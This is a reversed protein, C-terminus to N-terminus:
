EDRFLHSYVERLKEMALRLRTHLTGIPVGLQEAAERRTLGGWFILEIAERQAAPLTSLAGRVEDRLLAEDFGPDRAPLYVIEDVSLERRQAKGRRSRLEDIARHHAIAVLWSALSGQAAAYREINTWCRLFVDQVIEEAAGRDQVVRFAISYVLRGYRDYLQALGAPSQARLLTLIAADDAPTAPTATATGPNDVDLVAEIKKVPWVNM